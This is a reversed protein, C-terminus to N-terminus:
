GTKGKWTAALIRRKGMGAPAWPWFNVIRCFVAFNPTLALNVSFSFTALESTFNSNTILFYHYYQTILNTHTTVYRIIDSHQISGISRLAQDELRRVSWCSTRVPKFLDVHRQRLKTRSSCSSPSLNLTCPARIICCVLLLWCGCGRQGWRWWWRM